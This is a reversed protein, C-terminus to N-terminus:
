ENRFVMRTTYSESITQTNINKAITISIQVSRTNATTTANGASDFYSVSFNTVGTAVTTDIPCSATVEASPCTTVAADNSSPSALTRRYLTTGSLFYIENDKQSIYKATDSFIVNNSKDVAIKALILAQGSSTWGYSGGGPSNADAWRNNQDVSGSLRIDTNITDLAYEATGLLSTRVQSLTSAQLWTVIFNAITLSLIAIILMSVLMEVLTFGSQDLKKM